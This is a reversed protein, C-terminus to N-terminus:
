IAVNYTKTFGLCVQCRVAFCYDNDGILIDQGSIPQCNKSLFERISSCSENNVRNYVLKIENRSVLSVAQAQHTSLLM